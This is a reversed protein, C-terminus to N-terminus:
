FEYEMKRGDKTIVFPVFEDDIEEDEVHWCGPCYDKNEVFDRYWGNEVDCFITDWSECYIVHGRPSRMERGCCDCVIKKAKTEVEM